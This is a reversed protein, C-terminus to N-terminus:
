PRVAPGKNQLQAEVTAAIADERGHDEFVFVEIVVDPDFMIQSQFNVVKRGTLDEIMGSLRQTMENEFVQRFDRVTDEQGFDLLTEEATTLGGRMAVILLDDFFYSRAKLPGKGFFQKQARVMETSIRALLSQGREIETSDASMRPRMM